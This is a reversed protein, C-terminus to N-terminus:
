LMKAYYKRLQQSLRKRLFIVFKTNKYKIFLNCLNTANTASPPNPPWWNALLGTHIQVPIDYKGACEIVQHMMFDQFKKLEVENPSEHFLCM